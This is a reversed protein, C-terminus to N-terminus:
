FPPLYADRLMTFSRVALIGPVAAAAGCLPVVYPGGSAAYIAGATLMIAAFAAIAGLGIRVPHEFEPSIAGLLGAGFLGLAGLFGLAGAFAAVEASSALGALVLAVFVMSGAIAGALAVFRRSTM